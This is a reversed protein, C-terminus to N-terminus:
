WGILGGGASSLGTGVAISSYGALPARDVIAHRRSVAPDAIQIDSADDRGITASAGSPLVWRQEGMRVELAAPRANDPQRPSPTRDRPSLHIM